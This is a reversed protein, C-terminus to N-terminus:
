IHPFYGNKWSDSTFATSVVYTLFNQLLIVVYTIKSCASSEPYKIGFFAAFGAAIIMTFVFGFWWNSHTRMGTNRIVLERAFINYLCNVVASIVCIILLVKAWEDAYMAFFDLEAPKANDRAYVFIGVEILLFIVSLILTALLQKRSSQREFRRTENANRLNNKNTGM